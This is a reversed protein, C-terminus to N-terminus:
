WKTMPCCLLIKFPNQQICLRFTGSGTGRFIMNNARLIKRVTAALPDVKTKTLDATAIQTPDWRGSAGTSVVLPIGLEKRANILHCKATVNDIADVVFDPKNKGKLLLDSTRKDYFLPIAKITAQPNITQLREALVNAKLKGVKGKMAQIQRNPHIAVCM